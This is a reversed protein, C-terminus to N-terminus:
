ATVSRDSHSNLIRSIAVLDEPAMSTMLIDKAEELNSDRLAQQVAAEAAQAADSKQKSPPAEEDCTAHRVPPFKVVKDDCDDLEVIYFAAVVNLVFDIPNSDHSVQIPLGMMIYFVGATNVILDLIYRVNCSARNLENGQTAWAFDDKYLYVGGTYYAWFGACHYFVSQYTVPDETPVSDRRRSDHAKKKESQQTRAKGTHSALAYSLHACDSDREFSVCM